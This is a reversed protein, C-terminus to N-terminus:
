LYCFVFDPIYRRKIQGHNHDHCMVKTGDRDPYQPLFHGIKITQYSFKKIHKAFIQNLSFINLLFFINGQLFRNSTTQGLIYNNTM